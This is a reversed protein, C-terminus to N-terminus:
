APLDVRAKPISDVQEAQGCNKLIRRVCFLNRSRFDLSISVAHVSRAGKLAEGESTAILGFRPRSALSLGAIDGIVAAQLTPSDVDNWMNQKEDFCYEGAHVAERPDAPAPGM